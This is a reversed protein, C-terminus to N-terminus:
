VSISSRIKKVFGSLKLNDEPSIVNIRTGGKFVSTGDSETVLNWIIRVGAFIFENGSFLKLFLEETEIIEDIKNRSLGKIEFGIGKQCVNTADGRITEGAEFEIFISDDRMNNQSVDAIIYRDSLRKEM